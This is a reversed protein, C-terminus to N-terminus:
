ANRGSPHLVPELAGSSQNLASADTALAAWLTEIEVVANSRYSRKFGGKRVALEVCARAPCM